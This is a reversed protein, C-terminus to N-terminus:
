RKNTADNAPSPLSRWIDLLLEKCFLESFELLSVLTAAMRRSAVIFCRRAGGHTLRRGEPAAVLVGATDKLVGASRRSTTGHRNKARHEYLGDRLDQIAKLTLDVRDSSELVPISYAGYLWRDIPEL